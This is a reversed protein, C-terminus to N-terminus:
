IYSSHNMWSNSKTFCDREPQQTLALADMVFERNVHKRRSIVQCFEVM